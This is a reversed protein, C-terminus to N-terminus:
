QALIAMLSPRHLTDELIAAAAGAKYAVVYADWLEGVGITADANKSGGSAYTQTETYYYWPNTYQLNWGSGNTATTTGGTDAWTGISIADDNAAATFAVTPTSNNGSAKQTDSLYSSSARGSLEQVVMDFLANPSSSVSITTPANAVRCSYFRASALPNNVGLPAYDLTYTNGLDDSVTFTTARDASLAVVVTSGATITALGDGSGISGSITIAKFVKQVSAM